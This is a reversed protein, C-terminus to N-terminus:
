SSLPNGESLITDILRIFKELLDVRIAKFKLTDDEYVKAMASSEDDSLLKNKRKAEKYEAENEM